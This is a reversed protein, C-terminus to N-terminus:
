KGVGGSILFDPHKRIIEQYIKPSKEKILAQRKRAIEIEEQWHDRSPRFDLFKFVGEKQLAQLEESSLSKILEEYDLSTENVYADVASEPYGLSLGIERDDRAEMLRALKESDKGVYFHYGINYMKEEEYEFAKEKHPLGLKDLIEKTEEKEKALREAIKPREKVAERKYFRQELCPCAAPKEGLLVLLLVKKDWSTWSSLPLKEILEIKERQETIQENKEQQPISEFKPM